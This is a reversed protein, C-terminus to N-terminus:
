GKPWHWACKSVFFENLVVIIKIINIIEEINKLCGEMLCRRTVVFDDM